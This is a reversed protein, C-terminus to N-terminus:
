SIEFQKGGPRRRGSRRREPTSPPNDQPRESSLTSSGRAQATVSAPPQTTAGHTTSPPLPSSSPDPISREPTSVDLNAVPAAPPSVPHEEGNMPGAPPTDEAGDHGQPRVAVLRPNAMFKTAWPNVQAFERLKQHMESESPGSIRSAEVGSVRAFRNSRAPEEM